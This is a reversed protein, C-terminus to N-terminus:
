QHDRPVTAEWTKDRLPKGNETLYREFRYYFNKEGSRLDLVVSWVLLRVPLQVTTSGEGQVASEAPKADTVFYSMQERNKLKGPSVHEFRRREL